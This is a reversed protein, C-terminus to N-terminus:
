LKRVINARGRKFKRIRGLQELETLILSLKADSFRLTEKLEKQTARGEAGELVRLVSKADDDLEVPTRRVPPIPAGKEHGAVAAEPAAKKGWLRNSWLFVAGLAGLAIILITHELPWSPRLVLDLRQDEAGVNIADLYQLADGRDTGATASIGYEGEPLYISYNSKDTVLQYTFRGEVRIVTRDVKEFGPGYIDGHVYAASVPGILLAALLLAILRM